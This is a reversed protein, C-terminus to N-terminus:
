DDHDDTRKALLAHKDDKVMDLRQEIEYGADWLETIAHGTTANRIVKGEGDRINISPHTELIIYEPRNEETLAPIIDLEVGEVDLILGDMPPLDTPEIADAGDAPGYLEDVREGVLAHHLTVRHDMANWAVTEKAWEVMNEAAEYTDVTAGNMAAKVAFGGRGTAIDVVHDGPAVAERILGYMPTKLDIVRTFDTVAQRRMAVGNVVSLRRGFARIALPRLTRDYVSQTHSMPRGLDPPHVGGVDHLIRDTRWFAFAFWVVIVSAFASAILLDYMAITYADTM